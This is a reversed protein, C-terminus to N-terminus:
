FSLGQCIEKCSVFSLVESSDNTNTPPMQDSGEILKMQLESEANKEYDKLAKEMNTVVIAVILNTLVFAFIIIVLVLFLKWLMRFWYEDSNDLANFLGSLGERTACYFLTLMGTDMNEFYESTESTEAFLSCGFLSFMIMTLLMLIVMNIMDFISKFFTNVIIQMRSFISISRLSRLARFVRFIRFLRSADVASVANEQDIVMSILGVILLFFDFLNWANRWYVKCGYTMKLVFEMLFVANAFSELFKLTADYKKRLNPDTQMGLMVSNLLIAVALLTQFPRSFILAGILDEGSSLNRHLSSDVLISVGQSQDKHKLSLIRKCLCALTQKHTSRPESTILSPNEQPDLSEHPCQQRTKYALEGAWARKVLNRVQTHIKHKILSTEFNESANLEKQKSTM